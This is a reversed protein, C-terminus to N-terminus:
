QSEKSLPAKEDKGKSPFSPNKQFTAKSKPLSDQIDRAREIADQLTTPKTSKVLGHLPEVLGNIFMYVRITAYLDPVMVSLKLFEYIYTELNGLQKLKVLGMFPAEPDRRDFREVLRRTFELCATVNTHGLTSLGPFWWDHSEGELHLAAIKIVEM